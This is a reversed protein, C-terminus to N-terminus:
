RCPCAVLSQERKEMLHPLSVIDRADVAASKRESRPTKMILDQVTDKSLVRMMKRDPRIQLVEMVVKKAQPELRLPRKAEWVLNQSTRAMDSITQLRSDAIQQPPPMKPRTQVLQVVDSCSLLPKLPNM